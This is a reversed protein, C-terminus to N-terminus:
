THEGYEYVLTRIEAKKARRICDRTGVSRGKPFGICLDAGANIMEQNRIPGAARGYAKWDASRAEVQFGYMRFFIGVAHDIGAPNNGHVIVFEDKSDNEQRWLECVTEIAFLNWATDNERTGTVIIRKDM